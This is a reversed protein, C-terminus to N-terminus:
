KKPLENLVASLEQQAKADKPRLKLATEFAEKADGYSKLKAYLEGIEKYLQPDRPNQAIAVILEQERHRLLVAPNEQQVIDAPPPEVAATHTEEVIRELPKSQLHEQRVRHILHDAGRTVIGLALRLWRLLKELERLTRERWLSLDVHGVLEAIEPFMEKALSGGVTRTEPPMSSLQPLKRWVIIGIALGAAAFILLPIAIFM